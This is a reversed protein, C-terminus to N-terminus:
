PPKAQVRYHGARAAHRRLGRRDSLGHRRKGESKRYPGCRMRGPRRGPGSGSTPALRQRKYTYGRWRMAGM